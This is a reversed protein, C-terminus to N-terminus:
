LDVLNKVLTQKVVLPERPWQLARSHFRKLTVRRKEEMNVRWRKHQELGLIKYFSPLVCLIWISTNVNDSCHYFSLFSYFFMSLHQMFCLLRTTNNRWNRGWHMDIVFDTLHIWLVYQHLKALVMICMQLQGVYNKM